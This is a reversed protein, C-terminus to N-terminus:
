SIRSYNRNSESGQKERLRYKRLKKLVAVEARLYDNEYQLRELETMEELKKKPKRGM